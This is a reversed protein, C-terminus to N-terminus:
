SDIAQRYSHGGILTVLHLGILALFLFLKESSHIQTLLVSFYFVPLLVANWFLLMVVQAKVWRVIQGKASQYQSVEFHGKFLNM